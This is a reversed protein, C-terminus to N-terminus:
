SEEGEWCACDVHECYMEGCKRCFFMGDCTHNGNGAILMLMLSGNGIILFSVGWIFVDILNM